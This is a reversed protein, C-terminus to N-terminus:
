WCGDPLNTIALTAVDTATPATVASQAPDLKGNFELDRDISWYWRKKTWNVNVSAKGDAIKGTYIFRGRESLMEGRFHTVNGVRRVWYNGPKFRCRICIASWFMGNNFHLQDDRQTTKPDGIKGSFVMGDLPGGAELTQANAALGVFMWLAVLMSCACKAAAPALYGLHTLNVM